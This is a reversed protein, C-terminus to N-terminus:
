VAWVKHLTILKRVKPPKLPIDAVFDEYIYHEHACAVLAEHVHAHHILIIHMRKRHRLDSLDIAFNVDGLCNHLPFFLLKTFLGYWSIFWWVTSNRKILTTTNKFTIPEFRACFDKLSIRHHIIYEIGMSKISLVFVLLEM